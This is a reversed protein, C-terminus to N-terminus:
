AHHAVMDALRVFTAAENENTSIHHAAVARALCEPLGWRRLLLGGLTAHDLGEVHREQRVREEPAVTRANATGLYDPRARSLLLKGIDHLQAAALLEDHNDQGVERAIREAARMVGQAHVRSD